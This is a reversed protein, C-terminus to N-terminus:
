KKVRLDKPIYEYIFAAYIVMAQLNIADACTFAGMLSDEIIEGLFHSPSMKGAYVMTLNTLGNSVHSVGSFSLNLSYHNNKENVWKPFNFEKMDELFQLQTKEIQEKVKM